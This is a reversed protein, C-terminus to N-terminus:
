LLIWSVTFSWAIEIGIYGFGIKGNTGSWGRAFDLEGLFSAFISDFDITEQRQLTFHVAFSLKSPVNM